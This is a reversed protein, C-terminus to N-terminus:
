TGRGCRGKKSKGQSIPTGKNSSNKSPTCDSLTRILPDMRRRRNIRTAKTERIEKSLPHLHISKSDIGSLINTPTSVHKKEDV